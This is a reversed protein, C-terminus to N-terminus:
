AGNQNSGANADTRQLYLGQALVNGVGGVIHVGYNTIPSNAGIEISSNTSAKKFTMRTKNNAVVNLDFGNTTGLKFAAGGTNGTTLWNPAQAYAISSTAVLIIALMLNKFRNKM